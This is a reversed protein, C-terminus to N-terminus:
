TMCSLIRLSSILYKGLFTCVWRVCVIHLNYKDERKDYKWAVGFNWGKRWKTKSRLKNRRILKPNRSPIRRKVNYHRKRKHLYHEYSFSTFPPLSLHQRLSRIGSWIKVFDKLLHLIQQNEKLNWTVRLHHSLTLLSETARKDYDTAEFVSDTLRFHFTWIGYESNLVVATNELQFFGVSEYLYYTM